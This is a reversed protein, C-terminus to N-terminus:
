KIQNRLKIRTKEALKKWNDEGMASRFPSPQDQGELFLDYALNFSEQMLEKSWGKEKLSNVFAQWMAESIYKGQKLAKGFAKTCKEKDSLGLM